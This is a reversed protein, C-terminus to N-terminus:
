DGLSEIKRDNDDTYVHQRRQDPVPTAFVDYSKAGPLLIFLAQNTIPHSALVLVSRWLWAQKIIRGSTGHGPRTHYPEQLRSIIMAVREDRTESREDKM